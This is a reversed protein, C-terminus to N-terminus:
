QQVWPMFNLFADPVPPRHTAEDSVILTLLLRAKVASLLGASVLGRALLDTESGPFGYTCTFTPGCPVRVALVVPIQRSLTQLSTVWTEPVHGAGMAEIVLGAFGLAPLGQLLRGDDGMTAKLLAVPQLATPKGHYRSSRAPPTTFFAKGECVLGVPGTMPSAFASPLATHSKQVFTASHVEDNLVVLTGRGVAMDSTAVLISALLNAPGEAGPMQAGRMAGTVVVPKDSEILINLLFATEEITDTGQIVVAGDIAGELYKDITRALEVINEITLSAGPKRHATVTLIEALGAIQPVAGVLDDATLTPAIGAETAAATMTITGGTSIVVIKQM